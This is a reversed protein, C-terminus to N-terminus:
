QEEVLIWSTFEFNLPIATVIYLRSAKRRFHRTPHHHTVYCFSFSGDLRDLQEDRRTGANAVASRDTREIESLVVPRPIITLKRLFPASTKECPSQARSNRTYLPSTAPVRQTWTRLSSLSKQTQPPFSSLKKPFHHKACLSFSVFPTAAAIPFDGLGCLLHLRSSFPGFVIVWVRFGYVCRLLPSIVPRLFSTHTDHNGFELSELLQFM